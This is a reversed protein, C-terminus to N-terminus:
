FNALRKVVAGCGGAGDADVVFLAGNAYLRRVFGADDLWYTELTRAPVLTSADHLTAFSLFSAADAGRFSWVQRASLDSLAVREALTWQEERPSSYSAPVTFGSDEVWRNTTCLDATRAHLATANLSRMISM